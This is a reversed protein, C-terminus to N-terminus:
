SIAFVFSEQRAFVHAFVSNEQLDDIPLNAFGKARQQLEQAIDHAALKYFWSRPEQGLMIAACNYECALELIMDAAGYGNSEATFFAIKLSSEPLGAALLEEAARDLAPRVKNKASSLWKERAQPDPIDVLQPPYPPLMHALVVRSVSLKGLMNCLCTVARQSTGSQDVVVLLSGGGYQHDYNYLTSM